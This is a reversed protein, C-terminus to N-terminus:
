PASCAPKAWASAEPEFSESCAPGATSAKSKPTSPAFTFWCPTTASASATPSPLGRNAASTASKHSRYGSTSLGLVDCSIAVPWVTKHNAVWAYKM